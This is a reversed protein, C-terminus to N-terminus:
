VVAPAKVRDWAFAKAEEPVPKGLVAAAAAESVLPSLLIGRRYAGLAFYLGALPGGGVVPWGDPSGPRLGAWSRTVECGRLDPVTEFANYLLYELGEATVRKDFGVTEVTAGVLLRDQGRPVLYVNEAHVPVSPMLGAPVRLEMMQGKVPFGKLVELQPLIREAIGQVWAGPALLLKPASFKRGDAAEVTWLGGAQSLGVADVGASLEAGAARCAKELAPGLLENDVWQDGDAFYACSVRPSLMPFRGRLEAGEIRSVNGARRKQWLYKSELRREFSAGFALHICGDPHYGFGSGSAQELERAFAGWRDRSALTAAFYADDEMAESQAGIMGASAWTAEHAFQANRELVQVTLGASALRWASGLGLVGGGLVLVDPTKM